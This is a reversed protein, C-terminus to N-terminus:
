RDPQGPPTLPSQYPGAQYTQEMINLMDAIAKTYHEKPILERVAAISQQVDDYTLVKKEILANLAIWNTIHALMVAESPM